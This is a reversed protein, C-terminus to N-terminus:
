TRREERTALRGADDDDTNMHAAEERAALRGADDDARSM